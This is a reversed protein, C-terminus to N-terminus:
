QDIWFRRVVNGDEEVFESEFQGGNKIITRESGINGKDCVVLVRNIGLNRTKELAASLLFTAYGKRRESPRIGYGIHGGSNFLKENLRHRINVAGVVQKSEDMLWYTSHPVWDNKLKEESDQEYLFDIMSQFNTPEKEIVWPVMDEGSSKWDEYFSLYVERYDISPQVVRLLSQM